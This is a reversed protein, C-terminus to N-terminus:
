PLIVAQKVRGRAHFERDANDVFGETTIPSWGTTGSWESWALGDVDDIWEIWLLDGMGTHLEPNNSEAHHTESLVERTFGGAGDASAVIIQRPTSGVGSGHSEYAIKVVGGHVVANPRLSISALASVQTPASWNAGTADASLHMVAPTAGGGNYVLHLEGSVPDTTLSPQPDLDPSVNPVLITPTTWDGNEFSAIVLDYGSGNAQGWSVYPVGSLPHVSVSPRGDGNAAGQENLLKRNGLMPSYRVWYSPIPDSDDIISVPGGLIDGTDIDYLIVVEATTTPTLWLACLLLLIVLPRSIKLEAIM